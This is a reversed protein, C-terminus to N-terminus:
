QTPEPGEPTLEQLRLYREKSEAAVRDLDEKYVEYWTRSGKIMRSLDYMGQQLASIFLQYSAEQRLILDRVSAYNNLDTQQLVRELREELVQAHQNYAKASQTVKSIREVDAQLRQLQEAHEATRPDSASSASLLYVIAGTQLLSFLGLVGILIGILSIKIKKKEVTGDDQDDDREKGKDSM